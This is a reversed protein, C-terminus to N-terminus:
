VCKLSDICFPGDVLNYRITGSLQIWNKYSHLAKTLTKCGYTGLACGERRTGDELVVFDFGLYGCRRLFFCNIVVLLFIM